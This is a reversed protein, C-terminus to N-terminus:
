HHHVFGSGFLAEINEVGKKYREKFDVKALREGTQLDHVTITNDNVKAIFPVETPDNDAKNGLNLLNNQIAIVKRGSATSFFIMHHAGAEAKIDPGSSVLEPLSALKYRKVKKTGFFDSEGQYSQYPPKHACGAAFLTVAAAILLFRLKM